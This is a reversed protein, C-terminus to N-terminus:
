FKFGVSVGAKLLSPKYTEAADSYYSKSNLNIKEIEVTGFLDKTIMFKVGVGLGLGSHNKSATGAGEDQETYDFTNMGTAQVYSVKAYTLLSNNIYYGPEVSIGWVNKLKFSDTWVGGSSENFSNLSGSKQSGVVTFIGGGLNFSGYSKNYNLSLNGAVNNDVVKSDPSYDKLQTSAANLSIGAQISPGDFSGASAFTVLTLLSAGVFYRSKIM